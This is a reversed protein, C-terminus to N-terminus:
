IICKILILLNIKVSQLTMYFNIFEDMKFIIILNNYVIGRILRAEKVTLKSEKRLWIMNLKWECMNMGMIWCNNQTLLKLWKIQISHSSYKNPSNYHASKILDILM